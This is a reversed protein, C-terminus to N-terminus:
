PSPAAGIPVPIPPAVPARRTEAYKAALDGAQELGPILDEYTVGTKHYKAVSALALKAMEMETAATRWVALREKQKNVKEMVKDITRQAAEEPTYPNNAFLRELDIRVIHLELELRIDEDAQVKAEANRNYVAINSEASTVLQGAKESACGTLIAVSLLILSGLMSMLKM